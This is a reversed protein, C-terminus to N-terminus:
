VIVKEKLIEGGDLFPLLNEGRSRINLFKKTISFNISQTDNSKNKFAESQTENYNLSLNFPDEFYISYNMEKKSLNSQALRSDIKFLLNDMDLEAEIAYDSFNSKQNFLQLEAIKRLCHGFQDFGVEIVRGSSGM